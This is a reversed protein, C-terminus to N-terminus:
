KWDFRDKLEMLLGNITHYILNIAVGITFGIFLQAM